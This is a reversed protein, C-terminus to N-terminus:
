ASAVSFRWRRCPAQRPPLDGPILHKSCHLGAFISAYGSRFTLALQVHNRLHKWFFGFALVGQWLLGPMHAQCRTSASALTPDQHWNREKRPLLSCLSLCTM